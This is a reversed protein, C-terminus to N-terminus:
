LKDFVRPTKDKKEPDKLTNRQQRKGACGINRKKAKEKKEPKEAPLSSKSEYEESGRVMQPEM